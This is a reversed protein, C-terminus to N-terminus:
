GPAPYLNAKPFLCYGDACPFYGYFDNVYPNDFKEPLDPITEVATAIYDEGDIRIFAGLSGLAGVLASIESVTNTALITRQAISFEPQYSALTSDQPTTKLNQLATLDIDDLLKMAAQNAQYTYVALSSSAYAYLALQSIIAGTDFGEDMVHLTVGASQPYKTLTWYPSVPGRCQPLLSPHLNFFRCSSHAPLVLRYSYSACLVLDSDAAFKEIDPKRARELFLPIKHSAAIKCIHGGLSQETVVRNIKVDRRTLLYLLVPSFYDYGIYTIRL